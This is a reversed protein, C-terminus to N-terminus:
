FDKSSQPYIMIINGILIELVFMMFAVKLSRDRSFTNKKKKIKINKLCKKSNDYMILVLWLLYVM